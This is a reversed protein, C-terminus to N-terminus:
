ELDFVNHNIWENLYLEKRKRTDLFRTTDEESEGKESKDNSDKNDQKENSDYYM